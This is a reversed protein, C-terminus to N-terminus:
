ASRSAGSGALSLVCIILIGKLIDQVAVDIHLVNLLTV